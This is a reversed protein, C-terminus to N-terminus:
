ERMAKKDITCCQMEGEHMKEHRQMECCLTPSKGKEAIECEGANGRCKGSMCKGGNEM